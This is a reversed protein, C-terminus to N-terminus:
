ISDRATLKRMRQKVLDLWYLQMACYALVIGFNASALHATGGNRIPQLVLEVFVAFGLTIIAAPGRRRLGIAFTTWITLAAFSLVRYFHDQYAISQTGSSEYAAANLAVLVAVIGSLGMALQAPLGKMWYKRTVPIEVTHAAQIM